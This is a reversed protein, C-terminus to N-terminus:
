KMDDLIQSQLWFERTAVGYLPITKIPPLDRLWLVPVNVKVFSGTLDAFVEAQGRNRFPKTIPEGSRNQVIWGERALEVRRTDGRVSMSTQTLELDLAKAILRAADPLASRYLAEPPGYGRWRASQLEATSWAVGDLNQIQAWWLMLKLALLPWDKRFPAEPPPQKDQQLFDRKSAAHLDAHWDSQIEDLFLVRRGDDIKRIGTRIHVLVNRTQFHRPTYCGPWDDLQILIERYGDSGPLSHKEWQSLAHERGMSSFHRNIRSEAYEIADEPSDFGEESQDIAKGKDDLVWWWDQRWTLLDVNFLDGKYRTFLHCRVVSWGLARHRYRIVYWSSDEKSGKLGREKYEKRSILQCCENWGAKTRFGFHSECVFKPMVHCLNILRVLEAQYLIEGAFRELRILVGSEDLEEPKVGKGTMSRLTAAWQEAHARQLDLGRILSPLSSAVPLRALEISYLNK